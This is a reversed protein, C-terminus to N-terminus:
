VKSRKADRQADPVEDRGSAAALGDGSGGDGSEPVVAYRDSPAVSYAVTPRAALNLADVDISGASLSPVLTPQNCDETNGHGLQGNVNRGWSYFGGDETVALSHKWGSEIRTVKRGALAQVQQPAVVVEDNSGVGCQGFKNWGSAYLRGERDAALTHRWGGAVLAVDSVAAVRKPIYVDNRDGHMLQAWAGWGWTYMAGQDDVAISHRWGCAVQAVQVGELGKVKTPMHRDQSEGDGINGYRGWGFAFVEGDSTACLSHEAGCAVRLVRKGQLALVPQPLLSDQISGLGLQGSQNRGFTFLQGDDTAVLTHTDGCAVSAVTRGALSPLPCPVFVDKCDGTGLRGFDGWGWSWLQKERTSVVCSYEAGCAVLSVGRNVLAFVAQPTDRDEADGHGLQGDEGRGFSLVMSGSPTRLLALSHSAGAALGVVMPQQEPSGQQAM